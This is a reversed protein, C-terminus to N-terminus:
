FTWCRLALQNGDRQRAVQAWRIGERRSPWRCGKRHQQVAGSFALRWYTPRCPSTGFGTNLRHYRKWATKWKERFCKPWKKSFCKRWQFMETMQRVTTNFSARFTNKLRYKWADQGFHSLKKRDNWFRNPRHGFLVVELSTAKDTAEFAVALAFSSTPSHLPRLGVALSRGNENGGRWQDDGNQGEPGVAWSIPRSLRRGGRGPRALSPTSTSLSRALREACRLKASRLASFLNRLWDPLLRVTLASRTRDYTQQVSPVNRKTCNNCWLCSRV